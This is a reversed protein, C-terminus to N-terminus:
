NHELCCGAAEQPPAVLVGGVYPDRMDTLIDSWKDNGIRIGLKSPAIEDPIMANTFDDVLM